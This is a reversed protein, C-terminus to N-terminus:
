KFKKIVLVTIENDSENSIGHEIEGPCIIITGEEAHIEKGAIKYTPDGKHAFFEADFPTKHPALNAGPELTMHIIEFNPNVTMKRGTVGDKNYVPEFTKPDKTNMIQVGKIEREILM